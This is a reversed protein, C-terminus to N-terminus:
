SPSSSNYTLTHASECYNHTLENLTEMHQIPTMRQGDSASGSRSDVEGQQLHTSRTFPVGRPNVLFFM